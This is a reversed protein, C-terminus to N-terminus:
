QGQDNHTQQNRELCLSSWESGPQTLFTRIELSSFMRVRLSFWFCMVPSSDRKQKALLGLVTWILFFRTLVARMVTFPLVLICSQNIIRQWQSKLCYLFKKMVWFCILKHLFILEVTDRGPKRALATVCCHEVARLCVEPKHRVGKLHQLFAMIEVLLLAILFTQISGLHKMSFCLVLVIRFSASRQWYKLGCLSPSM